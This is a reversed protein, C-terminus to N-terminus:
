FLNEGLKSRQVCVVQLPLLKRALAEKVQKCECGVFIGWARPDLVIEESTSM